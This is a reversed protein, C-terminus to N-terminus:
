AAERQLTRSAKRLLNGDALAQAQATAVHGLLQLRPIDANCLETWLGTATALFYVRADTTRLATGETNGLTAYYAVTTM